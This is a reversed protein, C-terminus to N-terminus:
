HTDFGHSLRHTQLDSPPSQTSLYVPKEDVHIDPRERNMGVIRHVAPCKADRAGPWWM